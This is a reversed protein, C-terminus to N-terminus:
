FDVKPLAEEEKQSYVKLEHEVPKGDKEVWTKVSLQRSLIQTKLDLIGPTSLNDFQRRERLAQRLKEGTFYDGKYHDKAYKIAEAALYVADYNNVTQVAFTQLKKVNLAFERLAQIRQNEPIVQESLYTNYVGVGARQILQTGYNVMVPGKFGSDRLQKLCAGGDASTGNVYFTDPKTSLAKSIIPRFDTVSYDEWNDRFINKVGYKPLLKSIFRALAKGEAQNVHLIAWNGKLGLTQCMYHTVISLFTISNPITHFIYKACNILEPSSAGTNIMVVKNRDALPAQALQTTAYTTFVLPVKDVSILKQLATVAMTPNAQNDEYIVKIPVGDIGGKANIETIAKEVGAIQADGTVVQPGSRPNTMGLKYEKYEATLAPQGLCLIAAVCVGAMLYGSFRSMSKM